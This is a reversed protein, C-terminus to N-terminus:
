ILRVRVISLVLPSAIKSKLTFNLMRIIYPVSGSIYPFQLAGLAIVLEAMM